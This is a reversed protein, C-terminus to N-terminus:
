FGLRRKLKKWWRPPPSPQPTPSASPSPRPSPSATPSPLPTPSASPTPSPRPTPSASPTPTPKPAPQVELAAAIEDLMAQEAATRASAGVQQLLQAWSLSVLTYPRPVPAGGSATSKCEFSPHQATFTNQAFHLRSGALKSSCDPAGDCKPTDGLMCDGAPAGTKALFLNGVVNLRDVGRTDDDQVRLGYGTYAPPPSGWFDPRWDYVINSVYDIDYAGRKLQPQREGNRAFVNGYFTMRERADPDGELRMGTSSVTMPHLSSHILSYVLTVDKNGGYFDPASDVGCCVTVHEMYIREHPTNTGDFELVAADNTHSFNGFPWAGQFRVNRIRLDSGGSRAFRVGIVNWAPQIITVNAGQGDLFLGAYGAGSITLPQTLQIVHTGPAFRVTRPGTKLIAARLAPEGGGLAITIVPGGVGAQSGAGYGDVDPLGQADTRRAILLAAAMLTAHLVRRNPTKTM